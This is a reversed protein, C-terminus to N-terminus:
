VVLTSHLCKNAKYGHENHKWPSSLKKRVASSFNDCKILDFPRLEEEGAGCGVVGDDEVCGAASLFVLTLTYESFATTLKKIYFYKRSNLRGRQLWDSAEPGECGHTPVEWCHVTWCLFVGFGQLPPSSQVIQRTDWWWWRQGMHAQHRWRTHILSEIRRPPRSCGASQFSDLSGFRGHGRHLM